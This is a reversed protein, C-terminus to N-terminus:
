MGLKMLGYIGISMIWFLFGLRTVESFSVFSGTRKGTASAVWNFLVNLSLSAAVGTAFTIILFHTVYVM